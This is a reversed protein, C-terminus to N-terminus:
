NSKLIRYQPPKVKTDSLGTIDLRPGFETCPHNKELIMEVKDELVFVASEKVDSSHNQYNIKDVEVDNVKLGIIKNSYFENGVVYKGVEILGRVVNLVLVNTEFGKSFTKRYDIGIKVENESM